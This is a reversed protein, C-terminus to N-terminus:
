MGKGIEDAMTSVVSTLAKIADRRCEAWKSTALTIKTADILATVVFDFNQQLIDRPLSGLALAHGM